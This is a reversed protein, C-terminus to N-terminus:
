GELISRARSLCAIMTKRKEPFNRLAESILLAHRQKLPTRLLRLYFSEADEQWLERIEELVAIYGNFPHEADGADWFEGTIEVGLATLLRPRLLRQLMEVVGEEYGQAANYDVVNYGTSVSHLLEHILTRWRLVSAAVDEALCIQCSFPKLGRYPANPVIEVIGNWRSTLQTALEILPCLAELEQQISQPM